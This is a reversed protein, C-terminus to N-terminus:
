HNWAPAGLNIQSSNTLIGASAGAAGGLIAGGALDEDILAAGILGAGAGLAAGSLGRDIPNNGCGALAAVLAASMGITALKHMM